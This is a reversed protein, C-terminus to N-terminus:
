SRQKLNSAATMSYAANSVLFDRMWDWDDMVYQTFEQQNLGVEVDSTLRLMEIVANYERTHDKPLPLSLRVEFAASGDTARKLLAEIEEVAQMRYGEIAETFIQRHEDRNKEVIERLDEVKFTMERFM